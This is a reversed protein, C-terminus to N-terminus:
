GKDEDLNAAARRQQDIRQLKRHMVDLFETPTIARTIMLLDLVVSLEARQVTPEGFQRVLSDRVTEEDEEKTRYLHSSPQPVWM